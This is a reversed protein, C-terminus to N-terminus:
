SPDRTEQITASAGLLRNQFLSIADKVKVPFPAMTLVFEHGEGATQIHIDGLDLLTALIGKTMVSIDEISSLRCEAVNRSFLSAQEISILRRDTLIWLDFHYNTWVVFFAVWLILYWAALLYITLPLIARSTEYIGLTAIAEIVFIPLAAAIVLVVVQSFLVYWHRRVELVIKEDPDLRIM